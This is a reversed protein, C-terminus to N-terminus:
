GPRHTSLGGGCLQEASESECLGFAFLGHCWTHKPAGRLGPDKHDKSHVFESVRFREREKWRKRFTSLEKVKLCPHSNGRSLRSVPTPFHPQRLLNKPVVLPTGFPM